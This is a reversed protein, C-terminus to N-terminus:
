RSKPPIATVNPPNTKTIPNPHSNPPPDPQLVPGGGGSCGGGRRLRQGGLLTPNETATLVAAADSDGAAEGADAVGAEAQVARAHCADTRLGGPGGAACGNLGWIGNNAGM